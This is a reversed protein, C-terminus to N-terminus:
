KQEKIHVVFRNSNLYGGRKEHDGMIAVRVADLIEHDEERSAEFALAVVGTAENKEMEVKVM